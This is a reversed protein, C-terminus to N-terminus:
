IYNFNGTSRARKSHEKKWHQTRRRQSQDELNQAQMRSIYMYKNLSAITCDRAMYSYSIDMYLHVRNEMTALVNPAYRAFTNFKLSYERM